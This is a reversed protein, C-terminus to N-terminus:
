RLEVGATQLKSGLVASPLGESVNKTEAKFGSIEGPKYNCVTTICLDVNIVVLDVVRHLYHAGKSHQAIIPFCILILNRVDTVL